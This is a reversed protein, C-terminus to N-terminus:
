LGALREIVWYAALSGIVYTPVLRVLRPRRRVLPALAAAVLLVALVFAVQGIEIGANFSLLALPIDAGPLGVAALAGAFGLGHLLGFTFAMAWPRRSLLTPAPSHRALEVALVFISFAILVEIPGAPFGVWGLVALSLTVSHGLTFATVTWLLPRGGGVLLVLGLVFLLHDPGTLIHEIGLAGYSRAVAVRSPRAPIVFASDEPGLVHLLRRGDALEVRVLVAARSSAVDEIALTLGALTDPCALAWESVVEVPGAQVVPAGAPECEAPLVPALRSGPVRKAPTKWRVRVDGPAREVLELLSPALPHAAAAGALVLLVTAAAFLERM